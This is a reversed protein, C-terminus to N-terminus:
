YSVRNHLFENELAKEIDSKLSKASVTTKVCTLLHNKIFRIAYKRKEAFIEAEAEKMLQNFEADNMEDLM